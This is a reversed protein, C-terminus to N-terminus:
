TFRETEDRLGDTTLGKFIGQMDEIRQIRILHIIGDKEFMVVKEGPKIDMDNRISKPIVVQFKPSVTVTEM